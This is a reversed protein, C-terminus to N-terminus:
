LQIGSEELSIIGNASDIQQALSLDHKRIDTFKVSGRCNGVGGNEEKTLLSSIFGATHSLSVLYFWQFRYFVGYIYYIM